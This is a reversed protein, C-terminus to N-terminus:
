IHELAELAAQAADQEADKKSRGSGRSVEVGDITATISFTRDHPPGQEEVVSYSVLAGRRALLEQLASKYDVPHELADDIEPAFAEVVATATAEYGAALDAYSRFNRAGRAIVRARLSRLLMAMDACEVAALAEVHADILEALRHLLRARVAPGSAAWDPFADHAAQVARDVDDPDGQAVEALVSQDIPSIVQFRHASGVREGGIFHDTSVEIGAVRAPAAVSM